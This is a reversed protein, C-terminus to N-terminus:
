KLLYALLLDYTKKLGDIHTREYGHSNSTGFGIAAHRIDYGASISPDCDTGYHPTFIDLAYDIDNDKALARLENTLEYHYPFRSDKAFITVKKEDSTQEPGTPAIDVAIMDKVGAPLVTTGHGIEEYEAFYFYVKRGLKAKAEKLKKIVAFLVAVAAKDDVFRSKIYGNQFEFRPYLAIVDGTEIGLKRTDDACRVDEDLVICVDKAFDGVNKRLEDETVHISNPTRCITGTYVKGDRTYVRVNETVCYFPYLGGVPVVKLTGDANIHRVMLGIDDLHATVVLPDGEGGLDAIVGGKHIVEYPTALEDLLSCVLKEIDDCKGTTSDCNVLKEFTDLTYKEDFALNDFQKM